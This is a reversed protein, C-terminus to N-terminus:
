KLLYISFISGKHEKSKVTIFGGQMEIIQRSLYLGIGAGDATQNKGRYFRKFINNLEFESIGRGNDEINIKIFLQEVYCKISITGENQSYKIANDFVNYIAETTWKKDINLDIESNDINLIIDKEEIRLYSQQVIDILIDQLKCKEKQIKIVGNEIRSTKFLSSILWEIKEVQGQMLNLYELNEENKELSILMENYIKINALPTKIQHSIDGILSNVNDKEEKILLNKQILSSELKKLKAEIKSTLTEENTEFEVKKEDIMENLIFTIRNLAKVIKGRLYKYIVLILFGALISFLLLMM